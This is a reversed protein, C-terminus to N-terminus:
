TRWRTTVAAAVMDHYADKAPLRDNVQLRRRIAITDIGTRPDKGPIRCAQWRMGIGHRQWSPIESVDVGHRQLLETQQETSAGKLAATAQRASEGAQRMKWYCWTSLASRAADSQRWCFYDAVDAPSMGIWVRSDFHAPLGAAATFAASCLGASVSVLKEVGRGFLQCDPPLVVSIEDSHTCGYVASFDTMLATAAATMHKRMREDFPKKFHTETLQSFARGDVRIVAWAEPPVTLAHFRERERQIAAFEDADM